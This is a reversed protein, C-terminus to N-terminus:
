HAIAYLYAVIAYRGGKSLTVFFLFYRLRYCLVGAVFTLPDGIIPLASLLLIFGGYKDFSKQATSLSQQKIYNKRYLYEEGKLGIYYNLLAGLVNGFTAALWLTFLNYGLSIDYIFLAESGLPLLSGSLLAVTFLTIFVM